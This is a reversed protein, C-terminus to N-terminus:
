ANPLGRNEKSLYMEDWAEINQAAIRRRIEWQVIWLKDYTSLKTAKGNRKGNSLTTIRLRQRYFTELHLDSQKQIEELFEYADSADYVLFEGLNPEDTLEDLAERVNDPLTTNETTMDDEVHSKIDNPHPFDRWSDASNSFVMNEAEVGDLASHVERPTQTNKGSSELTTANSQFATLKQQAM